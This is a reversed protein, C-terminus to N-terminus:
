MLSQSITWLHTWYMEITCNDSLSWDLLTSGRLVHVQLHKDENAIATVETWEKHIGAITSYQKRGNSHVPVLIRTPINLMRKPPWRKHGFGKFICTMVSASVFHKTSQVHSQCPFIHWNAIKQLIYYYRSMSISLPEKMWKNRVVLRVCGYDM